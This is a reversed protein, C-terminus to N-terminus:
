SLVMLLSNKKRPFTTHIVVPTTVFPNIDVVDAFFSQKTAISAVSKPFVAYATDNQHKTQKNTQKTKSNGDKGKM